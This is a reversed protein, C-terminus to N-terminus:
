SGSLALLRSICTKSSMKHVDAGQDSGRGQLGCSRVLSLNWDRNRLGSLAARQRANPFPGGPLISHTM